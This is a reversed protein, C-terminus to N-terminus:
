TGNAIEVIKDASQKNLQSCSTGLIRTIAHGAYYAAYYSKIILWAISNPLKLNREISYMTEFAASAMRNCDFAFAFLMNKVFGKGSLDLTFKNQFIPSSIYYYEGKSLWKSLGFEQKGAVENLGPMWFPRIENIVISM